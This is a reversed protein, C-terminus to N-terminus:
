FPKSGALYAAIGGFVILVWWLGKAMKPKRLIIGLAAGFFLWIILKATAWGPFSGHMVGLRALLGFGAVLTIVMGVGHTIAASRRWAAGKQFGHISAMILGGLSIFIMFVGVLHLIKYVSYSILFAEEHRHFVMM